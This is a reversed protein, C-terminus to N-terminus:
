VPIDGCQFRPQPGRDLSIHWSGRARFRGSRSLDRYAPEERLDMGRGLADQAWSEIMGGDQEGEFVVARGGLQYPLQLHSSIHQRTM